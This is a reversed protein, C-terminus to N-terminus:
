RSWCLSCRLSSRGSPWHM